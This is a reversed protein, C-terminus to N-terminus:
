VRLASNANFIHIQHETSYRFCQDEARPHHPLRQCECRVEAPSHRRRAAHQCQQLALWEDGAGGGGGHLLAVDTYHVFVESM